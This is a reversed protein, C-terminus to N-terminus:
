ELTKLKEELRIMHQQWIEKFTKYNHNGPISFYNGEKLSHSFLEPGSGTMLDDEGFGLYIEPYRERETEYEKIWSWILYQWDNERDSPVTWDTLGGAEKIESLIHNWGLFPSILIVGEVDNKYRRIHFLSGVGGMSFGALWINRYGKARAPDIIDEKLREELIEAKYYGFHADPVVVDFPIGRKRVEEIIGQKEFDQHSGGRGRLLILLNQHDVADMKGYELVPIPVELSTCGGSILALLLTAILLYRSTMM